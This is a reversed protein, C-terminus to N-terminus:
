SQAVTVLAPRLVRDALVWGKQLVSVVHQPAVGEPAPVMSIAQHQHPDFKAGVPNIAVLRNKEFASQLQRLTLAAGERVTAADAETSELAKELSDMVPVLAEAFSEVAYKHAKTIDDQARRRTNEAEARARLYMEHNENAKALALSLEKEVDSVSASGLTEQAEVTSVEPQDPQQDNPSQQAM